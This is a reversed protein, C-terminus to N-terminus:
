VRKSNSVQQDLGVVFIGRQSAGCLLEALLNALGSDGLLGCGDFRDPDLVLYHDSLLAIAALEYFGLGGVMQDDVIREVIRFRDADLLHMELQGRGVSVLAFDRRRAREAQHTLEALEGLHPEPVAPAVCWMDR